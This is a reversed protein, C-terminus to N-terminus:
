YLVWSACNVQTSQNLALNIGRIFLLHVSGIDGIKMTCGGLTDMTGSSGTLSPSLCSLVKHKWLSFSHSFPIISFCLYFHPLPFQSKSSKLVFVFTRVPKPCDVPWGRFRWSWIVLKERRGSPGACSCVFAVLSVDLWLSYFNSKPGAYATRCLMTETQTGARCGSFLRVTGMQLETIERQEGRWEDHTKGVLTQAPCLGRAEPM